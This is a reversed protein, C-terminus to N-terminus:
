EQKGFSVYSRKRKFESQENTWKRLRVGPGPQQGLRHGISLKGTDRNWRPGWTQTGQAGRGWGAPLQIAWPASHSLHDHPARSATVGRWGMWWGHDLTCHRLRTCLAAGTSDPLLHCPLGEHNKGQLGWDCVFIYSSPAQRGCPGTGKPLFRFHKPVSQEESALM